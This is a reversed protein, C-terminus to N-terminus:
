KEGKIVNIYVFSTLAVLSMLVIIAPGTSLGNITSSFYTGLFSCLVATIASILLAKKYTKSWLLGTIAPAILFSSMLIVGVVKLGIAILSIMMFNLLHNLLKIPVGNVISFTKDFMYQKFSHYYITFIFLSMMGVFLILQIDIEQIFAAQGFLYRQLGAQAFRNSFGQLLNKLIIGLGFYSSSVLALANVYSHKSNKVIYQVTYYSIYGSIMAGFTLIIPNRSQTIFFIFLIGPYSAHAITDGILSQKTLVTITGVISSVLALACTGIAVSIFTYDFLIEMNDNLSWM